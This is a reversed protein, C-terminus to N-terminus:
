VTLVTTAAFGPRKRLLRLGYRVDAFFHELWPVGRQDRYAEKAVELGGFRIIAQRRAEVPSMGRSVNDDIDYQLNTQLEEDLEADSRRRRFLGLVRSWLVNLARM